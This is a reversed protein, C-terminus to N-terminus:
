KRGLDKVQSPDTILQYAGKNYLPAVSKERKKAIKRAAEEREQMEPDDIYPNAKSISVASKGMMSLRLGHPVGQQPPGGRLHPMRSVVLEEFPPREYRTTLRVPERAAKAAKRLREARKAKSFKGRSM